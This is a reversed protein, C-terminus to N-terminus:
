VHDSSAFRALRAARRRDFIGLVAFGLLLLLTGRPEPLNVVRIGVDSYGSSPLRLLLARETPGPLDATKRLLIRDDLFSGGRSVRKANEAPADLWEAVNGGMDSVGYASRSEPGAGDVSAANGNQGAWDAGLEHNAVNPGPNTVEGIGDALAPLPDTDWRTPYTWYRDGAASDYYAAKYWENESPLAWTAAPLRTALLEPTTVTLDYAGSETTQVNQSGSKNGNHRWNAYRAADLWSVFNVPKNAHNGGRVQYTYPPASGIRIIGGRPDTGMLPDYLGGPDGTAAVAALFDRYQANTVENQSIQFSTDVKGRGTAPDAPNGVDGIAKTGFRPNSKPDNECADGIGNQNSDAQSANALGACNDSNNAVGDGDPDTSTGIASTLNQLLVLGRDTITVTTPPSTPVGNVFVELVDSIKASGTPLQEGPAQLFYLPVRLVYLNSGSTQPQIAGGTGIPSSARRASVTGSTLPQGGGGLVAGYIIVDPEPLPVAVTEIAYLCTFVLAISNIAWGLAQSIELTFFSRRDGRM